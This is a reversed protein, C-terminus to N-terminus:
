DAVNRFWRDLKIFLIIDIKGGRIDQLMRQFEKRNQLRKRATTGADVYKGAVLMENEKAFTELDALQAELSYGRLAQEESSVRVYLAARKSSLKEDMM